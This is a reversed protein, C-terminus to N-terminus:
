DGVFKDITSTDLGPASASSRTGRDLDENQNMFRQILQGREEVRSLFNAAATEIGFGGRLLSSAEVLLHRALETQALKGLLRRENKVMDRVNILQTLVFDYKGKQAKLNEILSIPQNPEQTRWRTKIEITLTQMAQRVVPNEPELNELFLALDRLNRMEKKAQALAEPDPPNGDQEMGSSLSELEVLRNLCAAIASILIGIRDEDAATEKTLDELFNNSARAYQVIAGRLKNENEKSEDEQYAEDAKQLEKQAAEREQILEAPPKRDKNGQRVKEIERTKEKATELTEKIEEVLKQFRRGPAEQGQVTGALCSLGLGVSLIGCSVSRLSKHYRTTLFM